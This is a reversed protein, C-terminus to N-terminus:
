RAAFQQVFAPYRDGVITGPTFAQNLTTLEDASFQVDLIALNEALRSRRRM